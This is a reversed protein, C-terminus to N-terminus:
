IKNLNSKELPTLILVTVKMLNKHLKRKKMMKRNKNMMPQKRLKIKNIPHRYMKRPNNRVIRKSQIRWRVSLRILKKAKMKSGRNKIKARNWNKILILSWNSSKELLELVTMRVIRSGMRNSDMRSIQYVRKLRLSVKVLRSEKRNLSVEIQRLSKKVTM